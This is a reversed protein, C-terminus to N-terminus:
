RNNGRSPGAPGGIGEAEELSEPAYVEACYYYKTKKMYWCGPLYDFDYGDTCTMFGQKKSGAYLPNCGYGSEFKLFRSGGWILWEGYDGWEGGEYYDFTGDEHLAVFFYPWAPYYFDWEDICSWNYYVVYCTSAEGKEVAGMTLVVFISMALFAMALKRNMM